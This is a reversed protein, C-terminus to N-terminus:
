RKAELDPNDSRRLFEHTVAPLNDQLWAAMEEEQAKIQRFVTAGELDGVYEAASILASYAAIEMHEFVYSAMGGKIVEDSVFMGSISQGFASVKAAVDKFASNSENLRELVALVLRQQNKTEQIHQVIRQQLLPYHELRDAMKTLMSEAQEEMAHADRVWDIYNKFSERDNM